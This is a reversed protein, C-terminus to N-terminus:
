ALRAQLWRSIDSIEEPVVAHPMAYEHWEVSYDLAELMDKSARGFRPQIVDDYQGHAMFIPTDRNADSVESAVKDDLALYTSLALIGALKDARRLGTHLAMVGGQSFGALIIRESPMGNAIEHDILADILGQSERIGHEDQPDGFNLSIIDYWGRMHMGANLTIARVPAHPFVFRTNGLGLEPVIPVFDNGDAGLGHMWIITSDPNEAGTVICELANESM